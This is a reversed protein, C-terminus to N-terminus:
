DFLFTRARPLREQMCLVPITSPTPVAGRYGLEYFRQFVTFVARPRQRSNVGCGRLGQSLACGSSSRLEAPSRAEVDVAGILRGSIARQDPPPAASVGFPRAAAEAFNDADDSSVLSTSTRPLNGRGTGLHNKRHASRHRAGVRSSPPGAPQRSPTTVSLAIDDQVDV